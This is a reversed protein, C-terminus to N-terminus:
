EWNCASQLKGVHQDLGSLDFVATVPSENYPTVRAVFRDAGVLSRILGIDSGPYFTAQSDTSLSWRQTRMDQEGIRHSVRASSGLYDRWNIYVETTNDRCRLILAPEGGMSSRGESAINILTVVPSDDLPNVDESVNWPGTVARELLDETDEDGRRARQDLLRDAIGVPDELRALYGGWGGYEGIFRASGKEGAVFSLSVELGSLDEALYASEVGEGVDFLSATLVTSEGPGLRDRDSLLIEGTDNSGPVKLWGLRLNVPEKSINRVPVDLEHITTTYLRQSTRVPVGIELYERVMAREAVNMEALHAARLKEVRAIHGGLDEPEVVRWRRGDREMRIQVSLATDLLPQRFRLGVLAVDGEKVIEDIGEFSEPVAGTTQGLNELDIGEDSTADDDGEFVRDLRGESIADLTARRLMQVAAPKFQETLAVGLANGIAGFGSEDEDEMQEIFAQGVVHDVSTTLFRDLDVYQEFRLRNGERAAEEIQSLAYTPTGQYTWYSGGGLLLILGLAGGAILSRNM